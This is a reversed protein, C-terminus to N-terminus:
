YKEAVFKCNKLSAQNVYSGKRMQRFKAEDDLVAVTLPSSNM